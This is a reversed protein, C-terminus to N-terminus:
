IVNSRKATIYTEKVQAATGTGIWRVYWRGAASLTLDYHYAGTDDKEIDGGAYTYTTNTGDPARAIMSVTTPDTPTDEVDFVASVRVITGVVYRDTTTM